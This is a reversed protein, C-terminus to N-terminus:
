MRGLSVRPGQPSAGTAAYTFPNTKPLEGPRPYNLTPQTLLQAALLKAFDSTLAGPKGAGSSSDAPNSVPGGQRQEATQPKAAPGADPVNPKAQQSAMGPSLWSFLQQLWDM